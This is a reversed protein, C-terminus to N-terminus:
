RLLISRYALTPCHLETFQNGACYLRTVGLLYIASFKTPHLKLTKRVDKLSSGRMESVLQEQDEETGLQVTFLTKDAWKTYAKAVDSRANRAVKQLGSYTLYCDREKNVVSNTGIPVLETTFYEYDDYEIYTSRDRFIMNHAMRGINFEREVDLAYFYCKDVQREGFTRICLTIGNYKFDSMGELPQPLVKVQPQVKVLKSYMHDLWNRKIYLHSKSCVVPTYKVSPDSTALFYKDESINYKEILKRVNKNCGRFVVPYKELVEKCNYFNTKSEDDTVRVSYVRLSEM